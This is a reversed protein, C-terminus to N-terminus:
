CRPRKARRDVRQAFNELPVERIGLQWFKTLIPQVTDSRFRRRLTCSGCRMNIGLRMDANAREMAESAEHAEPSLPGHAALAASLNRGLADRDLVGDGVLSRTGDEGSQQGLRIVYGDGTAFKRGWGWYPEGRQELVAPSLTFSGLLWPTPDHPCYIGVTPWDLDAVTRSTGPTEWASGFYTPVLYSWRDM